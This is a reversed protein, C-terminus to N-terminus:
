QISKILVKGKEQLYFDLAEMRSVFADGDTLVMVIKFGLLKAKQELQNILYEICSDRDEERYDKDSCVYEIACVSTHTRIIFGFIVPIGNSEVLLGIDLMDKSPVRWNYKPFWEQILHYDTDTNFERITM